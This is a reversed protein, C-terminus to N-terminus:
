LLRGNLEKVEPHLILSYIGVTVWEPNLVLWNKRSESKKFYFAVGLRLMVGLITDQANPDVIEVQECELDFTEKTIHNNRAL